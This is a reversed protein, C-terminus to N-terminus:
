LKYHIIERFSRHCTVDTKQAYIRQANSDLKTVTWTQFSQYIPISFWCISQNICKRVTWGTLVLSRHCRQWMLKRRYTPEPSGTSRSRYQFNYYMRIPDHSAIRPMLPTQKRQTYQCISFFTQHLKPALQWMLKQSCLKCIHHMLPLVFSPQRMRICLIM